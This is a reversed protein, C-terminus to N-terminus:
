ARSEPGDPIDTTMLNNLLVLAQDSKSEQKSEEKKEEENTM